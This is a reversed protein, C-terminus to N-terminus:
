YSLGLYNSSLALDRFRVIEAGDAWDEEEVKAVLAVVKEKLKKGEKGPILVRLRMQARTIPIINKEQLQKIIEM